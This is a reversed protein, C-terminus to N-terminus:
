LEHFNPISHFDFVIQNPKTGLQFKEKELRFKRGSDLPILNIEIGLFLSSLAQENDLGCPTLVNWWMSEFAVAFM